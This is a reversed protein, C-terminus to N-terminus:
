LHGFRRQAGCMGVRHYCESLVAQNQALETSFDVGLSDFGMKTLQAGLRAPVIGVIKRHIPSFQLLSGSLLRCEIALRPKLERYAVLKLTVRRVFARGRIRSEVGRSFRSM